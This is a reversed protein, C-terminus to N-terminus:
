DRCDRSERQARARGGHAEADDEAEAGFEAGPAAIEAARGGVDEGVPSVGTIVVVVVVVQLSTGEEAGGVPSVGAQAGRGSSRARGHARQSQRRCCV